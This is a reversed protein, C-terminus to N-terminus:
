LGVAQAQDPHPGVNLLRDVEAVVLRPSIPKTLYGSFGMAWAAEADAPGAHATLGVVIIRRTRDDRLLLEAVEWGTLGPLGIDLLVLDPLQARALALGATGDGAELVVYGRHRLVASYIIRNDPNDEIILVTKGPV